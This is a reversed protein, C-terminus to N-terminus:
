EQRLLVHEKVFGACLRFIRPKAGFIELKSIASHNEGELHQPTSSGMGRPYLKSLDKVFPSYAIFLIFLFVTMEISKLKTSTNLRAAQEPVACVCGAEVAPAASIDLWVGESIAADSTPFSLIEFATVDEASDVEPESFATDVAGFAATVFLLVCVLLTGELLTLEFPVCTFDTEVVPVDEQGYVDLWVAGAVLLVLATDGLVDDEQM